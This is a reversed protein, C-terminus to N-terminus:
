RITCIDDALGAGFFGSDEMSRITTEVADLSTGGAALIAYGQKIAVIMAARGREISGPPAKSYDGAGCHAVLAFDSAPPAAATRVPGAFLLAALATLLSLAAFRALKM